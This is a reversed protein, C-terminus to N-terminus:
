LSNLYRILAQQDPANLEDSRQHSFRVIVDEVSKAQKDHFLGSRHGVGRLSPPNFERLGRQDVLGVDYVRESTLTQGSHCSACDQSKFIARGREVLRQDENSQAPLYSPPPPLTKLFAALDSAQSKSIGRGKMTSEVSQHIQAVLSKKKGNWGWPGTQGVGLLSLVRKPAGTTDDGFTDSMGGNTHGDTHCSHCSFWSAHSLRANFFLFEGREAPGPQPAPGLSLHSVYINDDLYTSGASYRNTSDYNDSDSEYEKYETQTSPADPSNGDATKPSKKYDKVPYRNGESVDEYSLNMDVLSLSDSLENVVVFRGDSVPLLAVPRRGVALRRFAKGDPEFVSVENVGALAIVTRGRADIFLSNPDGAGQGAYGVSLFRGQVATEGGQLMRELDALLVLNDVMVGWIIDSRRPTALDNLFQHSILLRGTSRNVALGRINHGGIEHIAEVRRTDRMNIVALRGGFTDAVLLRAGNEVFFQERPAFPLDLTAVLEPDFRFGDPADSDPALLNIVTLKRSWLCAVTCLRGYHSLEITIPHSPMPISQTVTASERDIQLVHLQSRESDVVLLRSGHKALDSPHGGLRFESVVSWQELDVVSLTGNRNAVVATTEDLREIAVPRRFMEANGPVRPLAGSVPAAHLDTISVLAVVVFVVLRRVWPTITKIAGFYREAGFHRFQDAIFVGRTRM